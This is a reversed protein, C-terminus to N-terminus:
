RGSQGTRRLLRGMAGGAWGLLESVEGVRMLWTLGLYIVVVGLSAAVLDALATVKSDGVQFINFFPLVSTLIMAVLVAVVVRTLTWATVGSGLYGYSRRLVPWAVVFTLLAALSYAMALAEVQHAGPGARAFLVVALVVLTGNMLVAFFFPTRTDEDAYWGRQLVYYLTFPLLGAMFIQIVFALNQAQAASAAGYNFLLAALPQAGLLIAAAIPAIVVAVLRM